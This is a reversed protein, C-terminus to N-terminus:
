VKLYRRMAWYSSLVNLAVVALLEWGFLKVINEKFYNVLSFDSNGLSELVYPQIFNLAPFLLIFTTICALLGFIIGEMLFPARIFWNSAGVLKMIGIEERHTYISMRITNFIILVTILGFFVIIALSITQVKGTIGNIRNIVTKHDEFDKESILDKYESENLVQLIDPYDAMDYAKVVLTAGLPNEELEELTESINPDDKHREEFISLAESQSIYRVDKVESLTLLHSEVSRVKNEEVGPNFYVSIDIKEKIVEVAEDSILTFVILFNVTLLALVIFTITIVSLWFNRLFDQLAFKLVRYFSVFM